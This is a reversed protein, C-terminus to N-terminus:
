PEVFVVHTGVPVHMVKQPSAVKYGSEIVTPVSKRNNSKTLRQARKALFSYCKEELTGQSITKIQTPKMERRFKGVHCASTHSFKVDSVFMTGSKGNFAAIPTYYSFLISVSGATRIFSTNSFKKTEPVRATPAEQQDM